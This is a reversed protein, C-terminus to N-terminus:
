DPHEMVDGTFALTDRNEDVVRAWELLLRWVYLKMDERRLVKDAWEAGREAIFRAAADGAGAGDAFFELVAHLDQLTSDLPVFHMWPVLRDDHWETFITSKLPLSTSRLLSRFRPSLAAGDVDPLFRNALQSLLPAEKEAASADVISSLWSGLARKKRRESVYLDKPPLNFAAGQEDEKELQSILGGDLMKVLRDADGRWFVKGNKGAWPRRLSDADILAEDGSLYMAGPILIDNNRPLKSGSFLPILEDTIPTTRPETFVRHMHRMHPQECPDTAATWNQVFGGFAYTPKWGLPVDHQSAHGTTQILAPSDPNCTGLAMDWHNRESSIWRPEFHLIEQEDLASLSMFNYTVEALPILKRKESEERVLREIEGFPVLLRADDALNVPMDLDPMHMSFERVLNAWDELWHPHDRAAEHTITEGNRISVVWPSGKARERLVRPDLSWFPTLDKYIRDFFEEVIVTNSETAAEVWKDFGPPPHRGRRIRYRSGAAWMDGTRQAILYEFQTSANVMLDRIPSQVGGFAISPKVNGANQLQLNSGAPTSRSPWFYLWHTVVLGTLFIVAVYRAVLGSPVPRLSFFRLLM